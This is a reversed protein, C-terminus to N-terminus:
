PNPSEFQPFEEVAELVLQQVKGMPLSEAELGFAEGAIGGTSSMWNRNLTKNKAPLAFKFIELQPAEYHRPKIIHRISAISMGTMELHRAFAAAITHGSPDWDVIAILHMPTQSALQPLSATAPHNPAILPPPTPASPLNLKNIAGRIDRATYESTLASPSGGLALTSCGTMKHIRRLLRIAGRKEAFVLVHPRTTGIRREEFNEDTFDFDSYHMLGEVLVLRTFEETLAKYLDAKDSIDDPALHSFIPKTWAYWFGRINSEIPDIDGSKIGQHVHWIISRVLKRVIIRGSSKAGFLDVLEDRQLTRPDKDFHAIGLKDLRAQLAQPM